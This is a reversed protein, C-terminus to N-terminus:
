GRGGRNGRPGWARETVERNVINNAKRIARTESRANSCIVRKIKKVDAYEDSWFIMTAQRQQKRKKIKKEKMLKRKRRELEDFTKYVSGKESDRKGM